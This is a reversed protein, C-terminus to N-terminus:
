FDNESTTYQTAVFNPSFRGTLVQTQHLVDFDKADHVDELDDSLSHTFIKRGIKLGIRRATKEFISLLCASTM